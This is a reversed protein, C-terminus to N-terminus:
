YRRGLSGIAAFSVPNKQASKVPGEAVFFVLILVSIIAPLVALWLVARIDSALLLMLGIAALPGLVAGTTDLGQRLGYAAGRQGHPTVDAILADRPAGRIGKGVRDMFRAGMVLAVTGALPFLPKSLAALGYGLVLLPKRRGLKDSLAGSFLKFISATAEAIGEVVGVAVMSAGLVTVMFVPLLSHVLESSLDMLLSVAGLAWVTRPVTM